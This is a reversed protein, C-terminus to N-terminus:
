AEVPQEIGWVRGGQQVLDALQPTFRCPEGTGLALPRPQGRHDRLVGREQRDSQGRRVIALALCVPPAREAGCIGLEVVLGHPRKRGAVAEGSALDRLRRPQRAVLRTSPPAARGSWASTRM